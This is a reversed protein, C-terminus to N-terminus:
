QPLAQTATLFFTLGARFYCTLGAAQELVLQYTLANPGAAFAQSMAQSMLIPRVVSKKSTLGSVDTSSTVQVWGPISTDYVEFHVLGGTTFGSAPAYLYPADCIYVGPSPNPITGVALVEGATSGALLSIALEGRFLVIGPLPRYVLDGGLYSSPDGNGRPCLGDSFTTADPIPDHGTSLHQIGHLPLTIVTEAVLAKDVVGPQGNTAYNSKLMYNTADATPQMIVLPLCQQDQYDAPLPVEVIDARTFRTAM